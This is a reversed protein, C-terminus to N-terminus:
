ATSSATLSEKAGEMAKRKIALSTRILSDISVAHGTMSTRLYTYLDDGDSIALLYKENVKFLALAVCFLFDPRDQLCMVVDWVRFLAEGALCRAFGSAFWDFLVSGILKEEIDILSSIHRWLEPLDTEIMRAALQADGFAELGVETFCANPLLREVMVVLLWFAHEPEPVVLLINATILNMGQVYGGPRLAHYAHLVWRLRETGKNYAFYVNNKLTRPADNDIIMSGESPQYNKIADDFLSPVAMQAAGSCVMWVEARVDVPVGGAVLQRFKKIWQNGNPLLHLEALVTFEGHLLHWEPHQSQGARNSLAKIILNHWNNRRHNTVYLRRRVTSDYHDELKKRLAMEEKKPALEAIKASVLSLQPNSGSAPPRATNDANSTSRSRSESESDSNIALSDPSFPTQCLLELAGESANTLQDKWDETDDSGNTETDESMARLSWRDSNDIEAAAEEERARRKMDYIFGLRDSLVVDKPWYGTGGLAVPLEETGRMPRLEVYKLESPSSSRTPSNTPPAPKVHIARPGTKPPVKIRPKPPAIPAAAVAAADRSAPPTSEPSPANEPLTPLGLPPQEPAKGIAIDQEQDAHPRRLLVDWASLWAFRKKVCAQRVTSIDEEADQESSESLAESIDTEIRLDNFLAAESPLPAHELLESLITSHQRRHPRSPPFMSLRLRAPEPAVAVQLDM